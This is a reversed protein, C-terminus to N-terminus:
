EEVPEHSLRRHLARTEKNLEYTSGTITAQVMAEFDQNTMSEIDDQTQTREDEIQEASPGVTPTQLRQAIDASFMIKRALVAAASFDDAEYSEAGLANARARLTEYDATHALDFINLKAADLDIPNKAGIRRPDGQELFPVPEPGLLDDMTFTPQTPQAQEIETDLDDSTSENYDEFTDLEDTM